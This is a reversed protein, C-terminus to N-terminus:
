INSSGSRLDIFGARRATLSWSDCIRKLPRASNVRFGIRFILKRERAFSNHGEWTTVSPGATRPPTIGFGIDAPGGSLEALRRLLTPYSSRGENTAVMIWRGSNLRAKSLGFQLDGQRLNKAFPASPDRLVHVVVPPPLERKSCATSLGLFLLM